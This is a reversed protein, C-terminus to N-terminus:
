FCLLRNVGVKADDWRHSRAPYGVIRDPFTRWVTFAFDLEDTTLTADEDLSFVADTNVFSHPFHRSSISHRPPVVVRVAVNGGPFRSETPAPQNMSNWIVVLQQTLFVNIIFM